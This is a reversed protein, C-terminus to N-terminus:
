DFVHEIIPRHGRCFWVVDCDGPDGSGRVAVCAQTREGFGLVVVGDGFQALRCGAPSVQQGLVCADCDAEM